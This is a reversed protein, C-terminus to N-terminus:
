DSWRVPSAPDPVYVCFTGTRITAELHAGLAPHQQAIRAMSSRIARTVAIRAREAPSGSVRDRGGLGVAGALERAIADLEAQLHAAREPDNWSEAEALETRLEGVRQRYAAKAEDDLLPGVDTLRRPALGDGDAAEASAVGDAGALDLAHLERGPAALLRALHAMGKADRIRVATAAFEISWYDGERRFSAATVHASPATGHGDASGLRAALAAMGLRRATALAAAELTAAREVDGAAGRQRLTAALDAQSHAVWPRAGMRRNGAVAADLHAVAEDLHGAARALLGLYRDAAGLSGETHGIANAGAFPLLREYLAEVADTAALGAAVESALAMGLLWECDPYLARFRDPALDELVARSEDIRGGDLLLLALAARHMPYWPFAEASARVSAEEEAGRGQERRLLFRHMRMASVDDQIPTTPLGPQAEIGISREAAAYDGELLALVAASAFTLWLQAPQRLERALNIVIDMEARADAIRGYDMYALFLMMHADILREPEGTAEAVDRMENAISLREDTNDPLWIAWYHGVLAYGLATPDDLQRAMAVAQQSIARRQEQREPASRWACALRTLLRVKLRDDTAGRMLLADQLLPILHPDNGVRAWFFRGGYGLVARALADADGDRRALEAAELFTRRSGPLDGARAEADGLRILTELRASPDPHPDTDLAALVMRYLRAASEYALSRIALDGAERAYDAARNAAADGEPAGGRSAEFWHHALEARFADPTAAYLEELTTAIGRHLAARDTEALEDYLTTRILDHAFRYRGLAAPVTTLLGARVADGLRDLLDPPSGMARRLVEVSFEPGIVAAHSLAAATGPDLHRVRRTIVERIASPLPLRLEEGTAMEALRGEAELLRVAEGVFLPNGRTERVIADILKTHPAVGTVAEILEAVLSEALGGLVISTATPLHVLEHLAARTAPDPTGFEADRFTGVVLIRTDGLQGALFRLFLLSALDAVHLDDLVILLPSEEAAARLFNTTSDFLQFRASESDAVSAEQLDAFAGRLDPVMQAVDGAGPGLQRRLMAPDTTRILGRVVQVWPWYAPAGAGDWCRGVLVRTGDDRARAALQDALRSKGIGPEGALLALRGREARAEELAAVLEALERDRGVFTTGGGPMVSQSMQEAGGAASM